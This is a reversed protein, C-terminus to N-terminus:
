KTLRGEEVLEKIEDLEELKKIKELAEKWINQLLTM